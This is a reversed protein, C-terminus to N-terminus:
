AAVGKIVSLFREGYKELKARGVGSIDGFAKTDAPRKEAMELLSKDTFVVYAPVNAAAAIERRLCALRFFLDENAAPMIGENAEPTADPAAPLAEKWIDEAEALLRRRLDALGHATGGDVAPADAAAKGQGVAPAAACSVRASVAGEAEVVVVKGEVRIEIKMVHEKGAALAAEKSTLRV